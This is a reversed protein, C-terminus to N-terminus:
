PSVLVGEPLVRVNGDLRLVATYNSATVSVANGDTSWDGMALRGQWGGDQLPGLDPNDGEVRLLEEGGAADLVLLTGPEGLMVAVKTGDPSVEIERIGDDKLLLAEMEGNLSMRRVQGESWFVLSTGAPQM